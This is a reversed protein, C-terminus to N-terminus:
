LIHRIVQLVKYAPLITNLAQYFEEKIALQLLKYCFSFMESVKEAAMMLWQYV